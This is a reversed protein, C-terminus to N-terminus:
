KQRLYAALIAEDSPAIGRRKMDAVIGAKAAEPVIINQPNQVQYARKEAPSAPGDGIGFLGGTRVMRVMVPKILQALLVNKEDMSLARKNAQQHDDIVQEFKARLDYLEARDASGPKSTLLKTMGAKTLADDFQQTDITAARAKAEADQGNGKAYFHRFDNESLLSRYQEIEGKKWKSPTNQLMFLTDPDSAKPAGQMLKAQDEPKIAAWQMPPINRWGGPSAFAIEQASNFTNTYTEKAALEDLHFRSKITAQAMRKEDPDAISETQMLLGSLSRGGTTNAEELQKLRSDWSKEYQGYKEPNAKILRAYEERRLEILKKPDGGSQEILEKAKSVGHNVAADFAAARMAPPLKDARIADWYREKYIVRAKDPTMGAIDLDPNAAKNIGLNTEGKGADDKVYGGEIRLTWPIIEDFTNGAPGASSYIAEGHKEGNFKVMAPKLAQRLATVDRVDMEAERKNLFAAATNPDKDALRAVVTKYAEGVVKRTQTEQWAADKGLLRAQEAAAEKVRKVAKSVLQEDGANLVIDQIATTQVGEAVSVGFNKYEQQRHRIAQGYITSAIGNAHHDFQARQADTLGQALEKRRAQLIEGYEDELAKGGPRELADKGTKSTFGTEPDNAIKLSYDKLQNLADNVRTQNVENQLDLAEQGFVQGMGSLARGTQQAQQAATDPMDPMTMRAQPLTNAAAQFSDYTPVRPM